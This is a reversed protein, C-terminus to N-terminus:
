RRARVAAAQLAHDADKRLVLDAVERLPAIHARLNALNIKEWVDLAFADAQEPSL